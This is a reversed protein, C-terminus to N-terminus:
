VNEYDGELHMVSYHNSIFHLARPPVGVKYLICGAKSRSLRLEGSTTRSSCHISQPGREERGAGEMGGQGWPFVLGEGQVPHVRGKVEVIQAGGFYDQFLSTDVTASMLVVRLDPYTDVM